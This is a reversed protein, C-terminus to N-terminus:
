YRPAGFFGTTVAGYREAAEELADEDVAPVIAVALIASGNGYASLLENAVGPPVGEDQLYTLFAAGDPEGNKGEWDFAATAMDGGGFVVGVGRVLVPELSRDPETPSAFDNDIPTVPTPFGTMVARDLDDLEHRGHSTDDDPWAEEEAAEQSDDMDQIQDVNSGTDSTSIGGGVRSIRASMYDADPASEDVLPHSPDDRRGVFYSADGTSPPGVREIDAGKPAVLSIDDLELGDDLLRRVLLQASVSDPLAAYFTSM